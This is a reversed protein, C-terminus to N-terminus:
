YTKIWTKADPDVKSILATFQPLAQQVWMKKLEKLGKDGIKKSFEESFRVCFYLERRMKRSVEEFVGLM